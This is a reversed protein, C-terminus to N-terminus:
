PWGGCRKAGTDGRLWHSRPGDAVVALCERPRGHRATRHSNPRRSGGGGASRHTAAREARRLVSRARDACRWGTGALALSVSDRRELQVIALAAGSRCEPRRRTRLPLGPARAPRASRASQLLRPRFCDPLAARRGQVAGRLAAAIEDVPLPDSCRRLPISPIRRQWSGMGSVAAEAASLTKRGPDLGRL